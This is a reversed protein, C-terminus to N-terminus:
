MKRMFQLKTVIYEISGNMKALTFMIIAFQLVNFAIFLGYVTSTM